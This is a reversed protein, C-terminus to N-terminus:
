YLRKINTQQTEVVGSPSALQRNINKTYVLAYINALQYFFIKAM